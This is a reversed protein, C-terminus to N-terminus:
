RIMKQKCCNTMRSPDFPMIHTGTIINTTLQLNIANKATNLDVQQIISEQKLRYTKEKGDTEIYGGESPLLVETAATKMAGDLIREETAQMTKRLGKYKIKKGGSLSSPKSGKVYKSVALEELTTKKTKKSPPVSSSENNYGNGSGGSSTPRKRSAVASSSSSSSSSRQEAM